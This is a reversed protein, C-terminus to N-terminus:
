CSSWCAALQRGAPALPRRCALEPPLVREWLLVSSILVRHHQPHLTHLLIVLYLVPLLLLWWPSLLSMRALGGQRLDRFYWTLCTACTPRSRPLLPHAEDRLVHSDRRTWESLTDRYLALTDRDVSIDVREASDRRRGM